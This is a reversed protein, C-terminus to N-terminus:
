IAMTSGKTSGLCSWLSQQRKPWSHFKFRPSWCFSPHKWWHKGLPWISCKSSAAPRQQRCQFGQLVDLFVDDDFLTPSYQLHLWFHQKNKGMLEQQHNMLNVGWRLSPWFPHFGYFWVALSSFTGRQCSQGATTYSILDHDNIRDLIPALDKVVLFDQSACSPMIHCEQNYLMGFDSGSMKCAVFLLTGVTDLYIGGHHHLLAYRCHGLFACPLGPFRRKWCSSVVRRIVDSRAADYDVIRDYEVPLDPVFDKSRCVCFIFALKHSGVQGPFRSFFRPKGLWNVGYALISSYQHWQHPLSFSLTRQLLSDLIGLEEQYVEAFFM